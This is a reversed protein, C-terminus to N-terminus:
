IFYVVYLQKRTCVKSNLTLRKRELLHVSTRVFLYRIIAYM